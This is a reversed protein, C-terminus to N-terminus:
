KLFCAHVILEGDDAQAQKAAGQTFLQLPWFASTSAMSM